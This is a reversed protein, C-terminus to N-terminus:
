CNRKCRLNDRRPSPPRNNDDRVGAANPDLWEVPYFRIPARKIRSVACAVEHYTVGFCYVADPDSFQGAMTFGPSLKWAMFRQMLAMQREREERRMSFRQTIWYDGEPSAIRFLPDITGHYGATARVLTQARKLDSLVLKKLTRRQPM